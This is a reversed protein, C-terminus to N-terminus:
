YPIEPQPDDEVANHDPKPEITIDAHHYESHGYLAM